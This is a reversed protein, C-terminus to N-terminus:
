NGRQYDAEPYYLTTQIEGTKELEEAQKKLTISMIKLREASDRLHVVYNARDEETDLSVPDESCACSWVRNKRPQYIDPYASFSFDEPDDYVDAMEEMQEKRSIAFQQVIINMEGNPYNLVNFDVGLSELEQRTM